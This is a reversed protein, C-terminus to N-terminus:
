GTHGFGGTGRESEEFSDVVNFSAQIVPLFLLQCIKDGPQITYSNDVQQLEKVMRESGPDSPVEVVEHELHKRNWMSAYVQGQYESDVIGILNGLVMGKKHGLGSRPVLVGVVNPNGIHIAIGTPILRNEGEPITIPEEICASLDMGADGPKAYAPLGWKNIRPDLIKIDVMVDPLKLTDVHAETLKFNIATRNNVDFLQFDGDFAVGTESVYPADAVNIGYHLIVIKSKCYINTVGGVFNKYYTDLAYDISQADIKDFPIEVERTNIYYDM